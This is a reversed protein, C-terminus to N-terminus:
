FDLQFALDYVLLSDKIYIYIYNFTHVLGEQPDNGSQNHWLILFLFM